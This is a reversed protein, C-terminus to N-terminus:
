WAIKTTSLRSSISDFNTVRHKEQLYCGDCNSPYKGELMEKRVPNNSLIDEINNKHINGIIDKSIICNKVNGNPELEFGTWPIICFNKDLVKRSM